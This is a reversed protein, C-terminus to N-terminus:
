HRCINVLLINGANGLLQFARFYLQGLLRLFLFKGCVVILGTSNRNQFHNLPQNSDPKDIRDAEVRQTAAV